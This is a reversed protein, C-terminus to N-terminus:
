ALERGAGLAALGRDRDADALWAAAHRRLARSWGDLQRLEAMVTVVATALVPGIVGPRLLLRRNNWVNMRVIAFVERYLSLSPMGRGEPVFRQWVAPGGDRADLMAAVFDGATPAEGPFEFSTVVRDFDRLHADSGGLAIRGARRAADTGTADRRRLEGVVRALMRASQDSYGGNVTEIAPFADLLTLLRPWPLPHGDLPHALACALRERECFERVRLTDPAPAGPLSCEAFLRDLLTQTLGFHAGDTAVNPTAPGYVLVEPATIWRGAGDPLCTAVEAGLGFRHTRRALDVAWQGLRHSRANVHDTLFLVDIPKRTLRGGLMAEVDAPTTRCESWYVEAAARGSTQASLPAILPHLASAEANSELSHLHTVVRFRRTRQTM